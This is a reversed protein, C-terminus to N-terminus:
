AARGHYGALQRVFRRVHEALVAAHSHLSLHGAGELVVYEARPFTERLHAM